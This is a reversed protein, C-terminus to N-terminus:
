AAVFERRYKQAAREAEDYSIEGPVLRHCAIAFESPTGHKKILTQQGPTLQDMVLRKFRTRKAKMPSRESREEEAQIHIAKLSNVGDERKIQKITRM